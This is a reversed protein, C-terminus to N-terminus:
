SIASWAQIADVVTAPDAADLEVLTGAGAFWALRGAREDRPSTSLPTEIALVPQDIAAWFRQAFRASSM